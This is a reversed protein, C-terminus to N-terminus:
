GNNVRKAILEKASKEYSLYQAVSCNYNPEINLTRHIFVIKDEWQVSAENREKRKVEAINHRNTISKHKRELAKIADNDILKSENLKVKLGWTENLEKFLEKNGLQLCQSALKIVKLLYYEHLKMDIKELEKEYSSDGSLAQYEDMIKDFPEILLEANYNPDYEILIHRLDSTNFVDILSRM